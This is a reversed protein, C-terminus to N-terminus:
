QDGLAPSAALLFMYTNRSVEPDPDVRAKRGRTIRLGLRAALQWETEFDFVRGGVIGPASRVFRFATLDPREDEGCANSGEAPIFTNVRSGYGSSHVTSLIKGHLDAVASFSAWRSGSWYVFELETRTRASNLERRTSGLLLRVAAVRSWACGPTDPPSPPRPRTTV